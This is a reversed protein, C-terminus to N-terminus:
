PGFDRLFTKLVKNCRQWLSYRWNRARYQCPTALLTALSHIKSTNRCKSIKQTLVNQTSSIQFFMLNKRISCNCCLKLVKTLASSLPSKYRKPKLPASKLSTFCKFVCFGNRKLHNENFPTRLVRTWELVCCWLVVTPATFFTRLKCHSLGEKVWGGSGVTYM